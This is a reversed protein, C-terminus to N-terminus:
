DREADARADLEDEATAQLDIIFEPCPCWGGASCPGSNAAHESEYHGCECISDPM